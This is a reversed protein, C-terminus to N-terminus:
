YALTWNKATIAAKQAETLNSGTTNHLTLKQATAGTLNALSDIISQVSTNTLKSSSAFSIGLTIEGDFIIDELASCGAAFTSNKTVGDFKIYPVTKLTSCYAFLYNASCGRVVIPVKTNTIKASKDSSTGYMNEASVTCVINGTPNYNADTWGPNAFAYQYDGGCNSQFNSWVATQGDTYGQDYGGDGGGSIDRIAQPMEVPTIKTWNTNKERIASAIELLTEKQIAYVPHHQTANATIWAYFEDSVTQGEEGFDVIRYAENVWGYNDEDYDFVLTEVLDGNDDIYAYTWGVGAYAGTMLFMTYSKGCSTFKVDYSWPKIDESFEWVGKITAM